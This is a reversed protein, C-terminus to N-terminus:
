KMMLKETKMEGNTNIVQVLYLGKSLGSVDMKTYSVVQKLKKNIVTRGTNDVVKIQQINNSEITIIDKAPNPYISLQYNIISLKRVESYTSSGDKDIIQLRYYLIGGKPPPPAQYEYSGKGKARVNGITEFDKGNTSYQINFGITNIETATVWNLLIKENHILSATFAAINVPLNTNSIITQATNTVVPSNYDFYISAKNTISTGLSVTSLPQVSFSVFGHSGDKSVFSDPLNINLFEFYMINEKMTIKCPHSTNIIKITKPQVLSSLTDALVVNIASASGTNQFRITYNIREGKVVQSPTLKATAQKDNPDFSSVVVNSTSDAAIAAGGTISAVSKIISGMQDSTKLKFLVILDYLKGPPINYNTLTLNNGNDNVPIYNSSIYTLLSNDYNFVINPSLVTTGANYYSVYYYFDSGPRGSIMLPTINIVLSDKTFAPVMAIDQAVMITDWRNTSFYQNSPNATFYPPVLVGQTINGLTDYTLQYIGATDTFAYSGNDLFVLGFANYPENYDKIGNNNLDYFSKGIVQPYPQCMYPDNTPDCIPLFAQTSTSGDTVWSNYNPLCLVKATDLELYNLSNPLIPLCHINNGSCSLINLRSPLPPLNTLQNKGVELYTLSAPLPPLNTLKNNYVILTDLGSPLAPLCTLNINGLNLYTLTNPLSPLANTIKTSGCGYHTLNSPLISPPAYNINGNCDFYTLNAPLTGISILSDNDCGFFQLSNPLRPFYKISNESCVLEILSNPLVSMTDMVINNFYCTLIQLSNPLKAPLKIVNNGDFHLIKLSDPLNPLSVVKNNTFDLSSLKNSLIPLSTLNNSTCSLVSLFSPLTPLSDLVNENCYLYKLNNPLPPLWSLYNSSCDLYTLNKFYGLGTLDSINGHSCAISTANVVESCTTDMGYGSFCTPFTQMLYQRFNSDHISVYQAKSTSALMLLSIALLVPIRKM